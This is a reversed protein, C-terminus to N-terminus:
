KKIFYFKAHVASQYSTHSPQTEEVTNALANSSYTVAESM